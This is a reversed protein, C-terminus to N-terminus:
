WIISCTVFMSDTSDFDSKTTHSYLNKKVYTTYFFRVLDGSPFSIDGGM